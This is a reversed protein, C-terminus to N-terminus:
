HSYRLWRWGKKKELRFIIFCAILCCALTISFSLVGLNCSFIKNELSNTFIAISGHLPYIVTSSKRLFLTNKEGNIRFSLILAFCSTCLPMLAFYCDFNYVGTHRKLVFWEVYLLASFFLVAFVLIRKNPTKFTGDAFCKGCAIWFIAVFFNFQPASFVTQFRNCFCAWFPFKALVFAYSSQFLTLFQCLVGIFLLVWNQLKSSLFYVIVVATISAAIFWSAIFTSDFLTSRVIIGVSCWVSQTFWANRRVYLTIPLLAIFWFLYLKVNRLVFQKLTNRRATKTTQTKLKSFFFFSTLIFFLPVAIRLFPYLVSPLLVTHIAVVMLSLIFKVVDLLRNNEKKVIATATEPNSM